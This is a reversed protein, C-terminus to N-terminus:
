RRKTIQRIDTESKYMGDQLRHLNFIVWERWAEDDKQTVINEILKRYSERYPVYQRTAYLIPLDTKTESNEGLMGWLGVHQFLRGYRTNGDNFMQLSAILGHYIIPKIFADYDKKFSDKNENYYDVFKESALLVDRYDIPFYSINPEDQDIPWSGVFKTNCDRYGLKDYSSTGRLLLDHYKLFNGQTLPNDYNKIMESIAFKKEGMVQMGLAVLFSDEKELAQNDVIDMNRLTKCFEKQKYESLSEKIQKLYDIYEDRTFEVAFKVKKDDALDLNKVSDFVKLDAVPYKGSAMKEEIIRTVRAKGTETFLM